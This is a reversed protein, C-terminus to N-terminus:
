LESPVKAGHADICAIRYLTLLDPPLDRTEPRCEFQRLHAYAYIMVLFAAGKDRGIGLMQHIPIGLGSSDRRFADVLWKALQEFHEKASRNELSPLQYKRAHWQELRELDVM